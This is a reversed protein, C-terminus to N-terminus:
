HKQINVYTEYLTLNPPNKPPPPPPLYCDSYVWTSKLRDFPDPKTM